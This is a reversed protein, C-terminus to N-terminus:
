FPCYYFLVCPHHSDGNGLAYSNRVQNHCSNEFTMPHFTCQPLSVLNQQSFEEIRGQAENAFVDMVKEDYFGASMRFLDPSERRSQAVCGNCCIRCHGIISLVACPLFCLVHELTLMGSYSPFVFHAHYLCFM